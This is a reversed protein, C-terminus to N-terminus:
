RLRALLGELQDLDSFDIMLKGAGKRNAKIAV